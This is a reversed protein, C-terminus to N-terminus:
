HREGEQRGAEAAPSCCRDGVAALLVSGRASETLQGVQLFISGLKQVESTGVTVAPTLFCM